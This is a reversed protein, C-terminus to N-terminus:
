RAYEIARTERIVTVKIQGPYSLDHEVKKVIDRALMYAMEDSTKGPQVIVRIERGAQIAYAKEVGQFSTAIKELDELRRLYNELMERRAGPRAGSLADAAQVIIPLIDRPSEDEHHAGIAHIIRSSEGYKKALEAGILAHPGEVEHDVAKGIDHLLGARKAVKPNLGLESAIAGSLFSVEMAHTFMNQGYSSRFKLKGILKTLEPHMNHIGLDFIAQEGAEKIQQNIEDTAKEVVEEIRAPHIRGDAVLRELAVRAIERRVPNFGSLIVAEPTDDIILDIGTEAEFARINRGERGIIRGKMEENPLPVTTVVRESVYDASYKQIALAIIKQAKRDAEEKFEEEIAKIKKAVEMKAENEIMIMLEQKAQELTYGSIRELREKAEETIQKYSEIKENLQKSTQDLQKERKSFDTERTELSETRRDLLEEKQLLRRELKQLESRKDQTEREFDARAQLIYDKAHLSAEKLISESERKARKLADEAAEEARKAKQDVAKR